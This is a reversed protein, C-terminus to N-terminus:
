KREGDACFWNLGRTINNRCIVWMPFVEAYKCDKCRVIDQQEEILKIAAKAIERVESDSHYDSWDDWTLGELGGLLTNLEQEDM